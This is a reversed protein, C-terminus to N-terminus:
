DAVVKGIDRETVSRIVNLFSTLGCSHNEQTKQVHSRIVNLFSTLGCSHNEQTKQVHSRIVNLFSTLGCLYMTRQVLAVVTDCKSSGSSRKGTVM